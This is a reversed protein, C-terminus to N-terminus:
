YGEGTLWRTLGAPDEMVAKPDFMPWIYTIEGDAIRFFNNLTYLRGKTTTMQWVPSIIKSFREIVQSIWLTSKESDTRNRGMRAAISPQNISQRGPQM